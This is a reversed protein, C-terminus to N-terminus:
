FSVSTRNQIKKMRLQKDFNPKIPKREPIDRKQFQDIDEILNNLM